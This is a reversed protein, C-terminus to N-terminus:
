KMQFYNSKVGFKKILTQQLPMSEQKRIDGCFYRSSELWSITCALFNSSWMGRGIWRGPYNESPWHVSWPELINSCRRTWVMHSSDYQLVCREVTWEFTNLSLENLQLWWSTGTFYLPGRSLWKFNRGVPQQFVRTASPSMSDCSCKWTVVNIWQSHQHDWDWPVAIWAHLSGKSYVYARRDVTALNMSLVCTKCIYRKTSVRSCHSFSLAVVAM